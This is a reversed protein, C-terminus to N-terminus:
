RGEKPDLNMAESALGESCGLLVLKAGARESIRIMCVACNDVTLMKMYELEMGLACLMAIKIVDAHSVLAVRGTAFRKIAGQVFTGIRTCADRMNEGGPLTANAPDSRYTQWEQAYRAIVEDFSLDVWDGYDLEQIGECAEVVMGERGAALIGATEMARQMPSSLIADFPIKRLRSAVAQAQRRGEENLPVPNRGMVKRGANYATQGHRIFVLELM